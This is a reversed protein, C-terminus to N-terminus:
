GSKNAHLSISTEMSDFRCLNWCCIFHDSKSAEATPLGSWQMNRREKLLSERFSTSVTKSLIRHVVQMSQFGLGLHFQNSFFKM